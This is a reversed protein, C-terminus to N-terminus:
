ATQNSPDRTRVEGLAHINKEQKTLKQTPLPTQSLIIVRESSDYRARLYTGFLTHYM